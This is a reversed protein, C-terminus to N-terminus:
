QIAGQDAQSKESQNVIVHDTWAVKEGHYQSEDFLWLGDHLKFKWAFEMDGSRLGAYKVTVSLPVYSGPNVETYDSFSEEVTRGRSVKVVSNLPVMREADLVLEANTGGTTFLGRWGSGSIGNGCVIDLPPIPHSKGGIDDTTGGFGDTTDTKRAGPVPLIKLALRIRGNDEKVSQVQVQEPTKALHQLLSSYTIGQRERSSAKSPNSVYFPAQLVGGPAKDWSLHFVYSYNTVTDPPALLWLRNAAIVKNLILKGREATRLHVGKEVATFSGVALIVAAAAVIATKAKTWAMIKLVGKV